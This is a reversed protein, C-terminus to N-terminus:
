TQLADSGVDNEEQSASEAAESLTEAADQVGEGAPSSSDGGAPRVTKNRRSSRACSDRVVLETDLVYHVNLSTGAQLADLMHTAALRGMEYCPTKITTIPPIVYSAIEIDDFGCVSIDEPILLGAEHVARMAGIALYDSDCMVATPVNELRLLSRMSECGYMFSPLTSCVLSTDYAIGHDSLAQRYGRLREQNRQACRLPGLLLGIREHGLAILYAIMNYSAKFNDIAIYNSKKDLTEWLTLYPIGSAEIEKLAPINSADLGAIILGEVRQEHFRKLMQREQVPSFQHAAVRCSFNRDSCVDQIAMLNMGFAAYVPSPILVGITSTRRSSLSGAMANYVYGLAKTAARVKLLTAEPVSQPDRLARSVTSLSVQAQNAVDKITIQTKQFDNKKKKM